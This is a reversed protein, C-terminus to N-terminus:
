GRSQRKISGPLERFFGGTAKLCDKVRGAWETVSIVESRFRFPGYGIVSICGIRSDAMVQLRTMKSLIDPIALMM